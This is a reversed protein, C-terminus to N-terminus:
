GACEVPLFSEHEIEHCTGWRASFGQILSESLEEWSTGPRLREMCTSPNPGPHKLLAETLLRNDAIPISGHQLFWGGRRVQASGCIKEGSVQLDAGMTEAFCASDAGLGAPIGPPRRRRGVEANLGLLSLGEILSEAVWGYAELVSRRGSPSVVSYTLDNDHLVAAGGTPRRVVEVGRSECRSALEHSLRQHAGVSLVPGHWGYVRLLPRPSGTAVAHDLLAADVDM